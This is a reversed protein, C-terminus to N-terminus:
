GLFEHAFQQATMNKDAAAAELAAYNEFEDACIKVTSFPKPIIFGDWSKLTWYNSFDGRMFLIRCESKKCILMAGDKMIYKPGRPGDPTICIDGGNRLIRILNVAARAGGKGSSGRESQIKFFSFFRELIAGDKSKSILGCM